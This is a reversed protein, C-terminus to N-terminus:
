FLGPYLKHATQLISDKKAIHEDTTTELERAYHEKARNVLMGALGGVAAGVGLGALGAIAKAKVGGSTGVAALAGTAVGPIAPFLVHARPSLTAAEGSRRRRVEAENILEESPLFGTGEDTYGWAREQKLFPADYVDYAEEIAKRQAPTFSDKSDLPHPTYEPYYVTAIKELYKNMPAKKTRQDHYRNVLTTALQAGLVAGGAKAVYTGMAPLLIKLAKTKAVDKGLHKSLNKYSFVNAHAEDVLEPLFSAGVAYKTKDRVNKDKSALMGVGAAIGARPAYRRLVHAPYGLKDYYKAHGAEHLMTSVDSSKSYTILSKGNSRPFQSHHYYADVTKGEPAFFLNSLEVRDALGHKKLVNKALDVDSQSVPVVNADMKKGLHDYLLRASLGGINMGVATALVAATANKSAESYDKNRAEVRSM